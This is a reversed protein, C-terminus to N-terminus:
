IITQLYEYKDNYLICEIKQNKVKNEAFDIANEKSDFYMYIDGLGIYIDMTEICLVAGTDPKCFTMAFQNTLLTPQRNKDKPILFVIYSVADDIQGKYNLINCNYKKVINNYNITILKKKNQILISNVSYLFFDFTAINFVSNINIKIFRSPILKLFFDIKSIFKKTPNM